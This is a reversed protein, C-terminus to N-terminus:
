SCDLLAEPALAVAPHDPVALGKLTPEIRRANRHLLGDSEARVLIQGKEAPLDV